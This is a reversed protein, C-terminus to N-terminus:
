DINSERSNLPTEAYKSMIAGLITETKIVSAELEEKFKNLKQDYNANSEDIKKKLNAVGTSTGKV